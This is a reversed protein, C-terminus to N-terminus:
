RHIAVRRSRSARCRSTLPAGVDRTIRRTRTRNANANINTECKQTNNNNKYKTGGPWVRLPGVPRRIGDPGDEFSTARVEGGNAEIRNRESANTDLRHENTARMVQTGTDITALSDGVGASTISKGSVVVITATAGSHIDRSLFQADMTHFARVLARPLRQEFVDEDDEADDGRQNQLPPLPPEDAHVTDLAALLEPVIREVCHEAAARGGHGDFLGFVSFHHTRWQVALECLDKDEGKQVKRSHAVRLTPYGVGDLDHLPPAFCDKGGHIQSTM